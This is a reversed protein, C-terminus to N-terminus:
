RCIDNGDDGMEGQKREGPDLRWDLIRNVQIQVDEPLECKVLLKGKAKAEIGHSLKQSIRIQSAITRLSKGHKPKTEKIEEPGIITWGETDVMRTSALRYRRGYWPFKPLDNDVDLIYKKDAM